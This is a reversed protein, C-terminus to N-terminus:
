AKSGCKFDLSLSTGKEKKGESDAPRFAVGLQVRNSPQSIHLGASSLVQRDPSFRNLYVITRTLGPQTPKLRPFAMSAFTFVVNHKMAMDGRYLNSGSHKSSGRNQQQVSTNHVIHYEPCSPPLGDCPLARIETPKQLASLSRSSTVAASSFATPHQVTSHQFTVTVSHLQLWVTQPFSLRVITAGCFSAPWSRPLM